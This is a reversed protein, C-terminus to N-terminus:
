SVSARASDTNQETAVSKRSRPLKSAALHLHPCLPRPARTEMDFGRVCVFGRWFCQQVEETTLGKFISPVSTGFYVMRRELNWLQERVVHIPDHSSKHDAFVENVQFYTGNLPFSGKMATRCPVLITGRVYQSQHEREPVCYQCNENSCFGAEMQTSCCPKPAKSMEKIDDQMWITLLYPSPDDPERQDLGLQQVLSHSDPLEYVYHETRLRRVNKLKPVPISAAETSIAVLAKAIDDPQLDKNSEKICNELNQAFAELNLKIIPIEGTDADYDEIDNELTETQEEERPSEPEEIIPESNNAPFDRGHTSGELQPLVTSNLTPMGGNQFNFQNRSCALGKEEPAPLALRASAFASAFHRCESRMPCANCNPKSKTCFVKGFTIMHYHLEYLTEQDLKCLRPWLYKQITELVPYLELLHLQLSEPLPQIPVWGLRVCIRGVNTDVPFALHHLTLLRVCEVSKLGLGRISLLYDKASDPAIDRLWELDISGHDKVLRNLFSQIREALVNNMGRDRIAHSIRRVDACRVAEWDVSDRREFTRENMYGDDCAKRRFKDWDFNETDKKKTTRTKKPTSAQAEKDLVESHSTFGSKSAFGDVGNATEAIMGGTASLSEHEQLDSAEFKTSKDGHLEVPLDTSIKSSIRTSIVTKSCIKQTAQNDSPMFLPIKKGTLGNKLLSSASGSSSNSSTSSVYPENTVDGQQQDVSIFPYYIMSTPPIGHEGVCDDNVAMTKLRQCELEKATADKGALSNGAGFNNRLQQSAAGAGGRPPYNKESSVSLRSQPITESVIVSQSSIENQFHIDPSSRLSATLEISFDPCKRTKHDIVTEQHDCSGENPEKSYFSYNEGKTLEYDSTNNRTEVHIKEYTVSLEEFNGGLEARPSTDFFDFMNIEGVVSTSIIEEIDQSSIDDKCNGNIPGAPFSAALAMYASSSLHDSVNQTLFVGVVSDVVSGKWPSFHRDGQVLRMRAIFSNARGQFVEREQKWWREKDVDTGDVPETAKGMLLNWVRTTEFDLNVKARPRQKKVLPLPREYPILMQGGFPVLSNSLSGTVGFSVVSTTTLSSHIDNTHVHGTNLNLHKMRSAVRQLFNMYPASSTNESSKEPTEYIGLNTKRNNPSQLLTQQFKRDSGNSGGSFSNGSSSMNQKDMNPQISSCSHLRGRQSRKKTMFKICTSEYLAEMCSQPLRTVTHAINKKIDTTPVFSSRRVRVSRKKKVGGAQCFALMQAATRLIVSDQSGSLSSESERHQRHERNEVKSVKTVQSETSTREPISTASRHMDFGDKNSYNVELDKNNGKAIAVGMSTADLDPTSGLKNLERIMGSALGGAPNEMDLNLEHGTQPTLSTTTASCSSSKAHILKEKVHHRSNGTSSQDEGQVGLEGLEFQLRRRVAATRSRAADEAGASISQEKDPGSCKELSSLNRNKRVYSRKAKQSPSKVEPTTVEPKKKKGLKGERIVKARHKKRRPKAKPAPIEENELTRIKESGSIQTDIQTLTKEMFAAPTSLVTHDNLQGGTKLKKRKREYKHMSHDTVGEALLSTLEKTHQGQTEDTNAPCVSELNSHGNCAVAASSSSRQSEEAQISTQPAEADLGNPQFHTPPQESDCNVPALVSPNMAAFNSARGLSLFDSPAALISAADESDQSVAPMAPPRSRSGRGTLRRHFVLISIPVQTCGALLNYSSRISSGADQEAAGSMSGPLAAPPTSDERMASVMPTSCGSFLTLGNTPSIGASIAMATGPIGPTLNLQNVAPNAQPNLGSPEM